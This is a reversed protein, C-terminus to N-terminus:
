RIGRWYFSFNFMIMYKLYKKKLGIIINKYLMVDFFIFSFSFLSKFKVGLFRKVVLDIEEICGGGDCSVYSWFLIVIGFFKLVCESIFFLM